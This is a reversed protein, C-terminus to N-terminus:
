SSQFGDEKVEGEDYEGDSLGGRTAAAAATSPSPRSPNTHTSSDPPKTSLPPQHLPQASVSPSSTSLKNTSHSSTSRPKSSAARRSSPVSSRSATTKTTGASQAGSRRRTDNAKQTTTHATTGSGSASGRTRAPQMREIKINAAKWSEEISEALPHSVGLHKEVVKKAKSYANLADHAQLLFEHQVALNHYAIALVAVRDPPLNFTPPNSPPPSSSSTSAGTAIMEHKSSEDTQQQQNSATRSMQEYDGFLEMLLLKLAIRAHIIAKDHHHLESLITCMNLHTDAARVVGGQSPATSAADSARATTGGGSSIKTEIGLAKRCYQLATRLKNRKRYYCAINNYTVARISPHSDSLVEAKKLLELTVDFQDQQLFTMALYNCMEAVSRCAKVVQESGIGFLHGRLILSKEMCQLADLLKGESQLSSSLADLRQLAVLQPHSPQAPPSTTHSSSHSSSIPVSSTANSPPNVSAM